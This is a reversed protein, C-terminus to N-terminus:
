GGRPRATRGSSSGAPVTLTVTGRPSPINIKAGEAAELLTVPVTVELNKGERRFYPHKAARVTLLLDGAPGGHPSEEGQGRLRIRKGDGIGQPIKATITERRGVHRVVNLQVEGGQVATQFPVEVEHEIDAGRM